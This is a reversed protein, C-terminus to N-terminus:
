NKERPPKIATPIDGDDTIAFGKGAAGQEGATQTYFRGNALAYDAEQAAAPQAALPGVMTALMAVALFLRWLRTM